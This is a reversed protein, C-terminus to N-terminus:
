RNGHICLTNEQAALPIKVNLTIQNEVYQCELPNIKLIDM